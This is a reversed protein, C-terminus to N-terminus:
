VLAAALCVAADEKPVTQQQAVADSKQTNAELKRVCAETVEIWADMKATMERENAAIRFDLSGV